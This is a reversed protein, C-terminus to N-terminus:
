YHYPVILGMLDPYERAEPSIQEIVFTTVPKTLWEMGAIMDRSYDPMAAFIEVIMAGVAGLVVGMDQTQTPTIAVSVQIPPVPTLTPKKMIYLVLGMALVITAAAALARYMVRRLALRRASRVKAMIEPVLEVPPMEMPQARLLNLLRGWHASDQTCQPCTLLHQQVTTLKEPTLEDEVYAQLLRRVEECTM